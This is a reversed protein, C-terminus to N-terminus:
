RLALGQDGLLKQDGLFRILATHRDRGAAVLTGHRPVPRNYVV